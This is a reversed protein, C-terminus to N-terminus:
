GPGAAACCSPEDSQRAAAVFEPDDAVDAFESERSFREWLRESQQIAAMRALLPIVEARDHRAAWTSAALWFHAHPSRNGMEISREFLPIALDYQRCRYLPGATNHLLIRLDGRREDPLNPHSLPEELLSGIQQGARCAAEVEGIQVYIMLAAIKEEMRMRFAQPWEPDEAALDGIAHATKLGADRLEMRAPVIGCTRLLEFRDQRNSEVRPASALVDSAITLWERGRGTEVWVLAQTADRLLRLHSV